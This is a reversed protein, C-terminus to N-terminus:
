QCDKELPLTSDEVPATVPHSVNTVHAGYLQFRTSEFCAQLGAQAPTIKLCNCWHLAVKRSVAGATTVLSSIQEKKKVRQPPQKTSSAETLAKMTCTCLAAQGRRLASERERETERERRSCKYAASCTNESPLLVGRTTM